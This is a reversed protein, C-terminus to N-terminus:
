DLDIVNVMHLHEDDDGTWEIVMVQSTDHPMAVVVSQRHVIEPPTHSGPPWITYGRPEGHSCLMRDRELPFQPYKWLFM